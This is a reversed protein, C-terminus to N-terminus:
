YGLKKKSERIANLFEDQLAIGGEGLNDRVFLQMAPVVVSAFTEKEQASPQYIEMRKALFPIGKESSAVIRTIGRSAVKAVLAADSIIKQENTSLSRYFDENVLFWHTSFIHNTLSLYKQVEYIKNQIIQGLPNHQGDVVGTQLSTYVEAWSIPIASAGMAKFFAIHSPLSM